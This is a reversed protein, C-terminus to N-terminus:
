VLKEYRDKLMQLEPTPIFGDTNVFVNNSHVQKDISKVIPWEKETWLDKFWKSKVLCLSLWEEIWKNNFHPTGAINIQRILSVIKTKLIKSAEKDLAGQHETAVIELAMKRFVMVWSSSVKKALRGIQGPWGDSSYVIKYKNSLQQKLLLTFDCKNKTGLEYGHIFSVINKDDVPHIYMGIRTVLHVINIRDRKTM